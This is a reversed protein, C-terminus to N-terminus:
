QNVKYKERKRSEEEVVMNNTEIESDLEQIKAALQTADLGEVAMEEGSEM